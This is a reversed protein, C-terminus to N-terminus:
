IDKTTLLPNSTGHLPNTIVGLSCRRTQMDICHQLGPWQPKLGKGQSCLRWIPRDIERQQPVFPYKCLHFFRRLVNYKWIMLIWYHNIIYTPNKQAPVNDLDRSLSCPYTYLLIISFLLNSNVIQILFVSINTWSYFTSWYMRMPESALSKARDAQNLGM